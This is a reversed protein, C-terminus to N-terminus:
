TTGGIVGRRQVMDGLGQSFEELIEPSILENEDMVRIAGDEFIINVNQGGGSSGFNEGADLINDFINFFRKTRPRDIFGEDAEAELNIGGAAHLNGSLIAGHAASLSAPKTPESALVQGVRIGAATAILGALAIGIPIGAPTPAFAAVSQAYAQLAQAASIAGIEAIQIEQTQDYIAKEKQWEARVQESRLKKQQQENKEQLGTIANLFNETTSELTDDRKQELAVIKDNSTKELAVEDAKAKVDAARRQDSFMKALDSVTQEHRDTENEIFNNFDELLLQEVLKRQEEDIAKEELLEKEFEFQLTQAIVFADFQAQLRAKENQFEENLVAQREASANQIIKLKEDEAIQLASIQENFHEQIIALEEDRTTELREKDDEFIQQIRISTIELQRITEDFSRGISQAISDSISSVSSIATQAVGVMDAAVKRIVKSLAGDLSKALKEAEDGLQKFQAKVDAFTTKAAGSFGKFSSTVLDNSKKQDRSLQDVLGANIKLIQMRKILAATLQKASRQRQFSNQLSFSGLREQLEIIRSNVRSLEQINKIQKEFTSGELAKIRKLLAIRDELPVNAKEQARIIDALASPLKDLLTKQEKLLTNYRNSNKEVSTMATSLKRYSDAARDAKAQAGFISNALFGLGIVLAAIALGVPGFMIGFAAALAPAIFIIATIAALAAALAGTLLIVSLVIKKTSDDLGNWRAILDKVNETIIEVIGSQNIFEIVSESIKNSLGQVSKQLRVINDNFLEAREGAEESFVLGLDQAEKAMDKLAQSGDKLLNVLEVGKVGFLEFAAASREVPSNMAKFRDALDEVVKLTNRANGSSDKMEVNLRKMTKTILATPANLKALSKIVSDQQIAALEAAFALGTFEKATVGASRSAKITEDQYKATAKTLALLAVSAGIASAALGAIQKTSKTINRDFTNADLKLTAVITKASPM